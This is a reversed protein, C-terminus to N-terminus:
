KLSTFIEKAARKMEINASIAAILTVIPVATILGISVVLTRVIEEAILEYNILEGFPRPNNLFLLLLPLAAGTYVLVLTNVMSAIHDRGIDMAKVFLSWVGLKPSTDKLQFIMAAQSITIDDLVGLAGIIIGALLLGKMQVAGKKAVELFTADESSFGSLHAIDIFFKALIGTLILAILTGLVASSTKKNIGHSLYFTIPIIWLSSIIAILIPDKGSLIQPLIFFLIIIFSIFMGLLSYAGRLGGIILTLIIFLAFLWYLSDRRIYDTIFYTDKGESDKTVSVSVKDGVRYAVSNIIPIKGNEVTIVKGKKSETTVILVINQYTRKVGGDNLIKEGSVKTVVAELREEIKQSKDETQAFVLSKSCILLAIALLFIKLIKM